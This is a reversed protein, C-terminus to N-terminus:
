LEPIGYLAPGPNTTRCIKMGDIIAKYAEWACVENQRESGGAVSVYIKGCPKRNIMLPYIVCGGCGTPANPGRSTLEQGESRHHALAAAAIGKAVDGFYELNKTDEALSETFSGESQKLPFIRLSDEGVLLSYFCKNGDRMDDEFGERESCCVAVAGDVIGLQEAKKRVANVIGLIAQNMEVMQILVM